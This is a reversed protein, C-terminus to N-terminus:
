EGSPCSNVWTQRYIIVGKRIVVLINMNGLIPHNGWYGVGTQWTKRITYHTISVRRLYKIPPFYYKSDCRDASGELGLAFGAHYLFQYLPSLPRKWPLKPPQTVIERPKMKYLLELQELIVDTKESLGEEQYKRLIPYQRRPNRMREKIRNIWGPLACALRKM